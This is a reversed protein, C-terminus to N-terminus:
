RAFQERRSRHSRALLAALLVLAASLTEGGGGDSGGGDPAGIGCGGHIVVGHPGIPPAALDPVTAMDLLPALDPAGSDVPQMLDPPAVPAQNVFAVLEAMTGNFHNQDCGVGIGDIMAKDTDQWFTWTEWTPQSINPCLTTYNADWLPYKSFGAPTGLETDFVRASTYIIPVRGTLTELRQLFALAGAAIAADTAGDTKELDITLPFDGAEPVGATQVFFDAQAVADVAPEFFHYAGRIVGADRAGAWNTAFEPDVFTTGQTAKIFTFAVNDAAVKGWDITGDWHSVDIGRTTEGKACVRVGAEYSAVGGLDATCGFALCTLLVLYKM